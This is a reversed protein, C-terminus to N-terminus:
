ARDCEVRAGHLEYTTGTWTPTPPVALRVGPVRLLADLFVRTEHMAVQWGPCRHPGEGFSLWAASMRRRRARGPDLAHPCGGTAAEDLNATRLDIAYIQGAAFAEGNPGTFDQTARRHLFTVVPDVRLIEYLIAFQAEDDGALFSARLEADELLQWAAVVIFERTTMMGASGYTLCEVFIARNSYGEDLLLSIVDDQRARGRARIAPLVDLGYFQLARFGRRASYFARGLRSKPRGALTDFAARLRLAMARRHSNTLGVIESAVDCALEFSLLDLQERGSARLRGVLKATSGDIVSRYRETMAAPSFFRAIQVRRLKHLEGDLFFVPLQDPRDRPIRDAGRGAQLVAPHRLLDRGAAFGSVVPCDYQPRAEAAALAATRSRVRDGGATEATAESM